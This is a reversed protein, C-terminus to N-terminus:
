GGLQEFQFLPIKFFEDEKRRVDVGNVVHIIFEITIATINEGEIFHGGNLSGDCDIFIGHLHVDHLNTKADLGIFGTATLLEVGSNTQKISSYKMGIGENSRVVQMYTAFNLSGMCQFQASNVQYHACIEKLGDMLDTGRKLRGLIRETKPDYIAQWRENDM